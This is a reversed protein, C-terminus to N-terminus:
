NSHLQGRRGAGGKLAFALGVDDAGRNARGVVGFGGRHRVRLSTTGHFGGGDLTADGM